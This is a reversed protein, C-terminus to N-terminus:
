SAEAAAEKELEMYAIKGVRTLPLEERYIIDKPLSWRNLKEAAWKKIEATLTEGAEGDTRIGAEPVVYARIVNMKYPDPIGVICVDRIAEHGRLIEEVQPPYVAIGSVKVMRKLRMRFFIFGDTDMACLDGTHVWEIGDKHRRMTEATEEPQNIYGLMNTPGSVCLEGDEGVPLEIETGPEVIKALIGPLPIGISDKRYEGPPILTCATM